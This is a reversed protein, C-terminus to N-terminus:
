PREVRTVARWPGTSRGLAAAWFWASTDTFVAGDAAEIHECVRVSRDGRRAVFCRWPTADAGREVHTAEISYGLGRFCDAAPHLRRTPERAERLVLEFAGADFRAIRGPFGRAFQAEV